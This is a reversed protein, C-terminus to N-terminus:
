HPEHLLTTSIIIPTLFSYLLTSDIVRRASRQTSILRTFQFHPPPPHSLPYFPQTAVDGHEANTNAGGLDQGGGAEKKTHILFASRTSKEM